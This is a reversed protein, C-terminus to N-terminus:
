FNIQWKAGIYFLNGLDADEVGAEGFKLKGFDRFGAEPVVFVGPAMQYAAQLYYELYTNKEFPGDNINTYLYGVGAELTLQETPSFGLALMAMLSKVDESSGDIFFPAVAIDASPPAVTGAQLTGGLWGASGGNLYYSVQPKVFMPGFNLDAGIGVMWSNITESQNSVVLTTLNTENYYIKQTQFGGFVHASMGDAVNMMYSAEIKPIYSETGVGAQTINADTSDFVLGSATIRSQDILAVKFGMGELALQGRRSGYANGLNLLGNDTAFVQGSLFFTVPTYDKGVKLAWGETFKWKAYLRRSSVNGGGGDSTVGFEFQADIMDGKVNAGIRSNGQLNWQTDKISSRDASDLEQRDELKDSTYFTAVRANGYLNWENAMATSVFVAALAIALFVITYKKM